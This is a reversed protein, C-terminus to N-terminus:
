QKRIMKNQAEKAQKALSAMVDPDVYPNLNTANPDIPIIAQQDSPTKKIEQIIEQYKPNTEEIVQEELLGVIHNWTYFNKCGTMHHKAFVGDEDLSEIIGTFFDSFQTDQFNTKAITTTLITCVRGVFADQLKKITLSKM